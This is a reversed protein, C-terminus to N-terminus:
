EGAAAGLWGDLHGALGDPLGGADGVSFSHVFARALDSTVTTGGLAGPPLALVCEMCELHDVEVVAGGTWLYTGVLHALKVEDSM